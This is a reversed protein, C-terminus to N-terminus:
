NWHRRGSEGKWWNRSGSWSGRRARGDLLSSRPGVYAIPSAINPTLCAALFAIQGGLSHGYVAVMSDSRETIADLVAALDEAERHFQYDSADGSAGRGRRDLAHVTRAQELYPRLADWRSHDGLAGHVLVLPPGSGSTFYAIETGDPSVVSSTTQDSSV